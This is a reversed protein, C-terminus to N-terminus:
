HKNNSPIAEMGWSMVRLGEAMSVPAVGVVGLKIMMRVNM